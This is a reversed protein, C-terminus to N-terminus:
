CSSINKYLSSCHFTQSKLDGVGMSTDLLYDKAKGNTNDMSEQYQKVRTEQQVKPNTM